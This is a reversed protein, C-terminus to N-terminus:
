RAGHAKDREALEALMRNYAALEEDERGQAAAGDAVRDRRRAEREDAKMWQRLLAFLVVAMPLEGFSRAMGGGLRLDETMTPGWPRDLSAFWDPALATTSQMLAVGLLAHFVMAAFILM